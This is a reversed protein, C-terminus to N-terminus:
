SITIGYKQGFYIHLSAIEVKSLARSYVLTEYIAGHFSDLNTTDNGLDGGISFSAAGTASSAYGTSKDLKLTVDDATATGTQETGDVEMTMQNTGSAGRSIILHVNTDLTDNSAINEYQFGSLVTIYGYYLKEDAEEKTSYLNFNQGTDGAPYGKVYLSFDDVEIAPDDHKLVQIITINEMDLSVDSFKDAAIGGDDTADSSIFGSRFGRTQETGDSDIQIYPQGGAGGTKFTGGYTSGTAASRMFSGMINGNADGNALNQVWHVIDGDATVATTGDRNKRLTSIDTFDFWAVLDNICSPDNQIQSKHAGLGLGLAM